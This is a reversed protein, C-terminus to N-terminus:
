LKGIKLSCSLPAMITTPMHHTYTLQPHPPRIHLLRRQFCTGGRVKVQRRPTLSLNGPKCLSTSKDVSVAWPRKVESVKQIKIKGGPRTSPLRPTCTLLALWLQQGAMGDPPSVYGRCGVPPEAIIGLTYFICKKRVPCENILFAMTLWSGDTCGQSSIFFNTVAKGKQLSAGIERAPMM